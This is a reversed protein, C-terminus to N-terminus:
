RWVSKAKMLSGAKVAQEIEATDPPLAERGDLADEADRIKVRVTRAAQM